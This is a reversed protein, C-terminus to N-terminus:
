IGAIFGHWLKIDELYENFWDNVRRPTKSFDILIYSEYENRAFKEAIWSKGIRRVDEILLATTGNKEQKWQLMRDYIKRRMYVKERNKVLTFICRKAIKTNLLRCQHVCDAVPGGSKSESRDDSPM